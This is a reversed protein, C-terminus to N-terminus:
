GGGAHLGPFHGLRAIGRGPQPAIAAGCPRAPEGAFGGEGNIIQDPRDEDDLAVAIALRHRRHGADFPQRDIERDPRGLLRAAEADRDNGDKGMRRRLQAAVIAPLGVAAVIEHAPRHPGDLRRHRLDADHAVHREIGIGAMAMVPEHMVALDDIIRRDGGQDALAQDLRFGAAVNEPRRVHHVAAIPAM